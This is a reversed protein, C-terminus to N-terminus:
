QTYDGLQCRKCVSSTAFLVTGLLALVSLRFARPEARVMLTFEGDADFMPRTCVKETLFVNRFASHNSASVIGDLSLDEAEFM